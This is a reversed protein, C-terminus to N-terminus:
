ADAVIRLATTAAMRSLKPPLFELEILETYVEYRAAMADLLETFAFGLATGRDMSPM